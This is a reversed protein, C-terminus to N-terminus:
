YKRKKRAKLSELARAAEICEYKEGKRYDKKAARFDGLQEFAYGRIYYLTGSYYLTSLAENVYYIVNNWQKNNYAEVALDSYRHYNEKRRAATEALKQVYMNMLDTDYLSTTPLQAWSDYAYVQATASVALSGTTLIILLKKKM